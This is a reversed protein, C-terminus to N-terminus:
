LEDRQECDGQPPRELDGQWKGATAEIFRLWEERDALQASPVDATEVTVRVTKNAEAPGLPVLLVGEHNTQATLVKKVAPGGSPENRRNM